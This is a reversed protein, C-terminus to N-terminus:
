CMNITLCNSKLFIRFKQFHGLFTLHKALGLPELGYTIVTAWIASDSSLFNLVLRPYLAHYHVGKLGLVWSASTPLDRHTQSWGSRHPSNWSLQPYTEVFLYTFLYFSGPRHLSVTEFLYILLNIFRILRFLKFGTEFIFFPPPPSTLHSLPYSCGVARGFTWLEFGLLWM